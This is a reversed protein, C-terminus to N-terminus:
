GDLMEVLHESAAVADEPLRMRTNQVKESKAYLVIGIVWVVAGLLSASQEIIDVYYHPGVYNLLMSGATEVTDSMAIGLAVAAPLIGWSVGVARSVALLVILWTLDMLTASVSITSYVKLARDPVNQPLLATIATAFLFLVAASWRPLPRFVSALSSRSLVVKDWLEYIVAVELFFTQICFAVAFWNYLGAVRPFTGWLLILIGVVLAGFVANAMASFLMPFSSLYKKWIGIGLGVACLVPAMIWLSYDLIRM